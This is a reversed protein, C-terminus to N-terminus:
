FILHVPAWPGKRYWGHIVVEEGGDRVALWPDDYTAHVVIQASPMQSQILAVSDQVEQPPLGGYTAGATMFLDYDFPCYEIENFWCGLRRFLACAIRTRSATPKLGLRTAEMMRPINQQDPVSIGIVTLRQALPHIRLADLAEFKKEGSM